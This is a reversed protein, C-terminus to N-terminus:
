AGSDEDGDDDGSDGGNDAVAQQCHTALPSFKGFALLVLSLVMVTAVRKM